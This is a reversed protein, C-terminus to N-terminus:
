FFLNPLAEFTVEDSSVLTPIITDLLHLWSLQALEERFFHLLSLAIVTPAFLADSVRRRTVKAVTNVISYFVLMLEIISPYMVFWTDSFAAQGGQFKCGITFFASLIIDLRPLLMFPLYIFSPSNSLAGIGIHRLTTKGLLYGRQLAALSLVWRFILLAISANSVAMKWDYASRISTQVAGDYFFMGFQTANYVVVSTARLTSTLTVFRPGWMTKLVDQNCAVPGLCVLEEQTEGDFSRISPLYRSGAGANSMFSYWRDGKLDDYWGHRWHGGPRHLWEATKAERPARELGGIRAVTSTATVYKGTLRFICASGDRGPIAYRAGVANDSFPLALQPLVDHLQITINSDAGHVVKLGDKVVNYGLEQCAHFIGDLTTSALRCVRAYSDYAASDLLLGHREIVRFGSITAEHFVTAKDSAILDSLQIPIYTDDKAKCVLARDSYPVDNTRSNAHPGLIPDDGLTIPIVDNVSGSIVGLFQSTVMLAVFICTMWDYIAGAIQM